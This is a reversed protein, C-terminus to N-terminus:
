ASHKIGRATLKGGKNNIVRGFEDRKEVSKNYANSLTQKEDDSLQDYMQRYQEKLKRGGGSYLDKFKTLEILKEITPKDVEQDLMTNALQDIREKQYLLAEQSSKNLMFDVDDDYLKLAEDETLTLGLGQANDETLKKVHEKYEPNRKKLFKEAAKKIAGAKSYQGRATLRGGKQKEKREIGPKGEEEWKKVLNKPANKVALIGTGYNTLYTKGDSTLGVIRKGKPIGGENKHIM